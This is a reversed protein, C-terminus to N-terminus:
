KKRREYNLQKQAIDINYNLEECKDWLDFVNPIWNPIWGFISGTILWSPIGIFITPVVLVFAEVITLCFTIIALIVMWLRLGVLKLTRM